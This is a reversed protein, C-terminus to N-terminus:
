PFAKKRLMEAVERVRLYPDHCARDLISRLRTRDKFAEDEIWGNMFGDDPDAGSKTKRNREENLFYDSAARRDGGIALGTAGQLNLVRYGKEERVLVPGSFALRRVPQQRSAEKLQAECHQCLKKQTVPDRGTLLRSIHVAVNAQMLCGEETCHLDKAHSTREALGLLHGAEHQILQENVWQAWFPRYGRNVFIAAPYPLLEAHPKARAAENEGGLRGDYYLVYLYAPSHESAPPGNMWARALERRSLGRAEKKSIVSSQCIHIGRPKDCHAALVSGLAALEKKSPECGAVADVEVYLRDHPASKLYLLHPKWFPPPKVEKKPEDRSVCSVCALALVMPAFRSIMFRVPRMGDLNSRWFLGLFSPRHM